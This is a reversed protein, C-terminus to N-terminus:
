KTEDYAAESMSEAFERTEKVQALLEKARPSGPIVKRLDEAETLLKKATDFDGEEARERAERQARTRKLVV